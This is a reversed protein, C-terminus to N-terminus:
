KFAWLRAMGFTILPVVFLMPLTAFLYHLELWDTTAWVGISNLALGVLAVILFRLQVSHSHRLSRGQMQGSFTYTFHGVYSFGFAVLFALLNATMPSLFHLGGLIAYSVTHIATALLGVSAFRALQSILQRM